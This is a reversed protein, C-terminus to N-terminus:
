SFGKSLFALTGLNAQVLARCEFLSVDIKLM